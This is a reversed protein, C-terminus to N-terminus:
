PLDFTSVASELGLWAQYYKKIQINSINAHQIWTSSLIDCRHLASSNKPRPWPCLVADPHGLWQRWIALSVAGAGESNRMKERMAHISYVWFFHHKSWNRSFSEQSTITRVLVPCINASKLTEWLKGRDKDIDFKPIEFNPVGNSEMAKGMTKEHGKELPTWRGWNQGTGWFVALDLAIRNFMSARPRGTWPGLACLSNPAPFSILSHYSIHSLSLTM